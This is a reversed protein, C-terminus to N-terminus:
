AQELLDEVTKGMARALTLQREMDALRVPELDKPRHRSTLKFHNGFASGTALGGKRAAEGTNKLHRVALHGQYVAFSGNKARRLDHDLDDFQTPSFAIDFDGAALLDPTRFLHCCGTVSVCPRLYDFQGYDLTQHHLDTTPSALGQLDSQAGSSYEPRLHLDANQIVHPRAADVVKCGYVGAEPFRVVAQGFRGLWGPPVLADDDLFATWRSRAVTASRMLWNRAAPAGMNVPATLIEVRERGLRDALARLLDPTEDTGANDVVALSVDRGPGDAGAKELAELCAALDRAKNHTYLCVAVPGDLRASAQNEGLLLDHLKFLLSLNWPRQRHLAALSPIAREPQGRRVRSEALRAHIGFVPCEELGAAYEDEARDHDGSLMELDGLVMHRLCAAPGADLREVHDRIWATEGDVPALELGIHLAYLDAQDKALLRDAVELAKDPRASEYLHQLRKDPHWHAEVWDLAEFFASPLWACGRTMTKLPAALIGSLPEEEWAALLMDRGLDAYLAAVDKGGQEDATGAMALGDRAMGTLHLKGIGGVLAKERLDHPLLDWKYEM